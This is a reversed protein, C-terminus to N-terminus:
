AAAATNAAAQPAPEVAPMETQTSEAMPKDFTDLSAEIVAPIEGRLVGIDKLVWDPLATLERIAVRRCNWRRFASFIRYLMKM